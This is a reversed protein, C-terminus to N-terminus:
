PAAGPDFKAAYDSGVHQSIYTALGRGAQALLKMREVHEQGASAYTYVYQAGGDFQVTVQRAGIRYAEVGSNGGLNAYPTMPASM